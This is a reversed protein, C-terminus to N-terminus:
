TEIIQNFESDIFASLDEDSLQELDQWSNALEQKQQNTSDDHIVQSDEFQELIYHTIAEINPYDFTLTNPLSRGLRTQLRNRFELAMLSDMGLDFFGLQPDLKEQTNLGLSRTVDEKIKEILRAKRKKPSFPKLQEWLTTKPQLDHQKIIESLLGNNQYIPFQSLFQKWNVPFVTTQTVKEQLLQGLSNLGQEISLFEVGASKWRKEGEAELNAAMGTESWPGWNITLSPLKQSQRYHCLGDLFANATAYNGQGLSGLISAISSFCVFFDLSLYQSYKHLNWAGMVKPSLVKEFRSWSQNILVGDDLCGALHIIGRINDNEQLLNTVAEADCVDVQKVEITVGQQELETIVAKAEPKPQSRGLLILHKAGNKVMWTSLKLGLGGLGGTILYSGQDSFSWLFNDKEQQPLSPNPFFPVLRSVYRQQPTLAIESAIEPSLLEERLSNIINETNDVSIDVLGGWFDPYELAIVRGLGWVPTQSLSLSNFTGETVVWLRPTMNLRNLAQVLYLLSGCNRLQDDQVTQPTLADTPYSNLNWLHVIRDCSGITELVRQLDQPNHIDITWQKESISQYQQGPFVLYCHHGEAELQQALTIAVNNDDAFLLWHGCTLQQPQTQKPQPQWVQQYFANEPLSLPKERNPLTDFWYSQRQFPYTPLPLRRRPYDQDFGDWDIAVGCRYLKGLSQLLTEWNSQNSRLSSLWMGVDEPLCRRAMGILTPSPGIELFIDYNQEYLTQMGQFFQVTQRCNKLWYDPNTVDQTQIRKGTVTSVIAITPLFYNIDEAVERFKDLMPEILASHFGQSVNLLRCKIGSSEVKKLTENIALQEGTIVCCRPGNIAAIEVDFKKIIQNIEIESAFIVAMKGQQPLAEMLKGRAAILKLGDELSFVGAICAAVYEGVSHGMVVDPEVGWSQWLKALAYEISFLAPQTYITQDLLSDGTRKYLVNVLSQDLYSKLLRDCENIINRFLPSTEYLERGMAIYQSGQGTFLFAIKSLKRVKEISESLIELQQCLEPLTAAIAHCRYDFHSRGRNATYCLDALSITKNKTLFGRYKVILEQLAEKSKGSLGLIQLPREIQGNQKNGAGQEGSRVVPSEEVIIHANTGSMGFSSIGAMRPLNDQRVYDMRGKAITLPINDWSIAPNLTKLHLHAPLQQHQLSLIVKILSAIGAAAELHGINTKVSGLILPNEATRNCGYVNSLAEVEIPDGLATGTGHVEIYNVQHPEIRGNALADQIVKEQALGNPVTLGSSNGDHNIATGRILGLIQDQNAIADQYRKLVVMGCGEGRGYGDASADFTKCRGDESLAQMQSLIDYMQPALMLQVGGALALSCERNRLSQCALHVAVLSSSCATDIALTPGQLGLYYSVRGAAVSPTNGTFAYADLTKTKGQTLQLQLYDSSNIGIFVGTQSNKLKNPEIGGYELAEWSVELLLRQQPDLCNAERPAINFFPADFEDVATNLFSGIQKNQGLKLRSESITGATDKKEELLQWFSEPDNGGGPFRCGMGVIAIAESSTKEKEILKKQMEELALFAKKLPSLKDFDLSKSDM